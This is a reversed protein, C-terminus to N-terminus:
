LKHFNIGSETLIALKKDAFLTANYAKSSYDYKEKIKGDTTINLICSSNKNIFLWYYDYFLCYGCQFPKSDIDVQVSWLRDLTKASRLEFKLLKEPFKQIVLALTENNYRICDIYEDQICTDPSKWQKIIEISPLLRYEIITSMYDDVSLFLSTNSCTCSHFKGKKLCNSNDLSITNEHVFCIGCSEVILIFRDLTSSWCIDQIRELYWPLKKIIKYDYDILCLYLNQHFLLYRDNSAIIPSKIGPFDITKFPLSLVSHLDAKEQIQIIHDDIVLPQINIQFSIHEIKNLNENLQHIETKLLDVDQQSAEEEQILKTLTRRTLNIEDKQKDIKNIVIQEIEKYKQEFLNDITKYYKNRWEELKKRCEGISEKIDITMLQNDITNIEDTLPNLQAIVMDNHEKLHLLCLDQNCCHCLARSIRKCKNITCLTQSM